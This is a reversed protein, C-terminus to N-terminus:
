GSATVLSVYLTTAKPGVFNRTDMEAEVVASQGPPVLSAGAKGSTCGCSARVNTITIPESLRNTMVFSHRVKGGRPVPGFDHGKEAFLSDSWGAAAARHGVIGFLVAVGLATKVWLRHMTAEQRADEM